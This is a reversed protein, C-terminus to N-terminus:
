EKLMTSLQTSFSSMLEDLSQLKEKHNYMFIENKLKEIQDSVQQVTRLQEDIITKDFSLFDIENLEFNPHKWFLPGIIVENLKHDYENLRDKVPVNKGHLLKENALSIKNLYEMIMDFQDLSTSGFSEIPASSSNTQKISEVLENLVADTNRAESTSTLSRDILIDQECQLITDLDNKQIDKVVKDIEDCLQNAKQFDYFNSFIEKNNNNQDDDVDTKKNNM